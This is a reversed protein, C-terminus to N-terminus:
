VGGTVGGGKLPRPQMQETFMKANATFRNCCPQWLPPYSVHLSDTKVHSETLTNFNSRSHRPEWLLTLEVLRFTSCAEILIYCLTSLHWCSSLLPPLSSISFPLLHDSVTLMCFLHGSESSNLNISISYILFAFHKHVSTFRRLVSCLQASRHIIFWQSSSDGQRRGIPGSQSRSWHGWHGQPNLLHILSM